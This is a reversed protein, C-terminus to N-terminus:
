WLDALEVDSALMLAKDLCPFVLDLQQTALCCLAVNNFVRSSHVGMQLVLFSKM